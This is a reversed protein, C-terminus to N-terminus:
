APKYSASRGAHMTVPKGTWDHSFTSTSPKTAFLCSQFANTLFFFTSGHVPEECTGANQHGAGSPPSVAAPSRGRSQRERERMRILLHASRRRSAADNRAALTRTCIESDPIRIAAALEFGVRPLFRWPPLLLCLADTGRADVLFLKLGIIMARTRSTTVPRHVPNTPMPTLHRATRRPVSRRRNRHTTTM